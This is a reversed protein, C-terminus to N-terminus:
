NENDFFVEKYLMTDCLLQNSKVNSKNTQQTEIYVLLHHSNIFTSIITEAGPDFAIVIPEARLLECQDNSM